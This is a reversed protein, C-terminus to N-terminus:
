RFSRFLSRAPDPKEGRQAALWAERTRRIQEIHEAVHDSYVVLWDDLTMVGNEPHVITRAWDAPAMRGVLAASTRRLLGLLAIADDASQGHYDLERAWRDEDYASVAGGPEALGRRLRFYSSAESDALHVLIEHISWREPGPKFRWMDRPCAAIEAALAAPAAAYTEIRRARAAPSLM